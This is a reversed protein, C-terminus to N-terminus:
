PTIDGRSSKRLFGEVPSIVPGNDDFGTLQKDMGIWQSHEHPCSTCVLEPGRQRWTHHVNARSAALLADHADTLDPFQPLNANEIEEKFNKENPDM